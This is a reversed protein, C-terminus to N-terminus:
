ILIGTGPTLNQPLLDLIKAMYFLIFADLHQIEKLMQMLLSTIVEGVTCNAGSLAILFSFAMQVQM